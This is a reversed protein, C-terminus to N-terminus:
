LHVLAQTASPSQIGGQVSGVCRAVTSMEHRTSLSRAGKRYNGQKYVRTGKTANWAHFNLRGPTTAAEYTPLAQSYSSNKLTRTVLEVSERIAGTRLRARQHPFQGPTRARVPLLKYRGAYACPMSANRVQPTLTKRIVEPAPVPLKDDPSLLFRIGCLECCIPWLSCGVPLLPLAISCKIGLTPPM